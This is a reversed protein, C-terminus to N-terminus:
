NEVLLVGPQDEAQASADANDGTLNLRDRTNLQAFNDHVTGLEKGGLPAVTMVESGLIAANLHCLQM